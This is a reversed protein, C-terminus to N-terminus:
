LMWEWVFKLVKVIMGFTFIVAILVGFNTLLDDDQETM